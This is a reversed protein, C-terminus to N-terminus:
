RGQDHKGVGGTKVHNTRNFYTGLVLFFVNSLLLFAATDGDEKLALIAAVYLTSVTVILAVLSQTTEWILNIRRQGATVLNEQATTTPIAVIDGKPTTVTAAGTRDMVTETAAKVVPDSLVAAVIPHKIPDAM